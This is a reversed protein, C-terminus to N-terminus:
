MKPIYLTYQFFQIIQPSLRIHQQIIYVTKCIQTKNNIHRSSTEIKHASHQTCQRYRCDSALPRFLSYYLARSHTAPHQCGNYTPIPGPFRTPMKNGCILSSARDFDCRINLLTLFDVPSVQLHHKRQVSNKFKLQSHIQTALLTSMIQLKPSAKQKQASNLLEEKM